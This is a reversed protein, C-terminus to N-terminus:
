FAFSTSKVSSSCFSLSISVSNPNSLFFVELGCHCNPFAPDTEEGLMPLHKEGCFFSVLWALSQLDELFHVRDRGSDIQNKVQSASAEDTL